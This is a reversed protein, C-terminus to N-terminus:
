RKPRWAIVGGGGHTGKGNRPARSAREAIGSAELEHLRASVQKVGIGLVASIEVSTGHGSGLAESVMALQKGVPKSTM